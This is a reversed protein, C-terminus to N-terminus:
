FSVLVDLSGGGYPRVTPLVQIRAAPPTSTEEAKPKDTLVLYLGAGASVAGLAYFVYQLAGFTSASSCGDSIKSPSVGNLDKTSPDKALDCIDTTKPQNERAKKFDDSRDISFVKLQSYLGAGGLGAGLVLAGYGAIKRLSPAAGASRAQEETQPTLSIGVSSNPRVSVEGAVAAYGPARVEIKHTGVSVFITAQGDKISGSPQGDVFIQGNVDGAQIKVSGKPPGGTLTALADIVIKHLADDNQDTMNDSFSIDTKTKGQDRTWLHLTGVVRRGPARKIAGWLFRTAKIQDAIRVECAADPPSPCKLALSLVELSFDGEGLSWGKLKRVEGKIAQTLAEAQDDADDTKVSVVHIPLADPGPPDAHALGAGGLTTLAASM